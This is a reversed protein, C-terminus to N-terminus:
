SQLSFRVFVVAVFTVLFVGSAVSVAFQL